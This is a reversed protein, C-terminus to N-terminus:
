RKGGELSACVLEEDNRAFVHKYAFAPHSWCVGERQPLQGTTPRILQARSIETYGQPSLRAIILQGRENFLWVRDGNRVFHITAWRARPVADRSEWLRDGTRADLCRLEGYSDVGYVHEGIFLPTSIISHLADTVRENQGRRQWLREVGPRDTLLRLMLSGDYFGCLFLRDGAVVPTAVGLPVERSPWAYEWLLAGSQPDLGVVRDGTRCILIRKGAQSIVIPASYNARDALARWREKGSKSDFAVLCADDAGGIQVIVLDGDILPAAALGWVPMRIRYERGLDKSWLLTGKAADLCVLHGVAGLSYARGRDITVSARPGDPYGVGEYACDYAHSWRRKGSQWDFCHIREQEKPEVVRDTLYVRGGAV